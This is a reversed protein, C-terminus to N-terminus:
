HSNSKPLHDEAGQLKPIPAVDIQVLSLTVDFRIPTVGTDGNPIQFLTEQSERLATLLSKFRTGMRAQVM